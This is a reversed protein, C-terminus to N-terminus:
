VVSPVVGVCDELSYVAGKTRVAVESTLAWANLLPIVGLEWTLAQNVFSTDPVSVRAQASLEVSSFPNPISRLVPVLPVKAGIAVTPALMLEYVSEPKIAPLM